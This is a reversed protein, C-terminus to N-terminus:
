GKIHRTISYLSKLSRVKFYNGQGDRSGAANTNFEFTKCMKSNQMADFFGTHGIRGLTPFYITIVDGPLPDKYWKGKFYVLNKSNHATPSFANIKTKVGASDFTWRVGAACYPCRCKLGCSRLYMEVQPGDNNGTLEQLGEQSTYIEQVTLKKKVPKEISAIASTATESDVDAIPTTEIVTAAAAEPIISIDPLQDHKCSCLLLICIGLIKIKAM